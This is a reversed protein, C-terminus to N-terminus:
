QPAWPVQRTRGCCAKGKGARARGTVKLMEEELGLM